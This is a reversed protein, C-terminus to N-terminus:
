HQASANAALFPQLVQLNLNSNECSPLCRFLIFGTIFWPCKPSSLSQRLLKVSGVTIDPSRHIFISCEALHLTLFTFLSVFDFTIDNKQTQIKAL